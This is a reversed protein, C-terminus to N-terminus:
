LQPHSVQDTVSLFSQLSPKPVSDTNLHSERCMYRLGAEMWCICEWCKVFARSYLISFYRKKLACSFIPDDDISLLAAFLCCHARSPGLRLSSWRRVSNRFLLYSTYLATDESLMHWVNFSCPGWQSENFEYLATSLHIEVTHAVTDSSIVGYLFCQTCLANRM